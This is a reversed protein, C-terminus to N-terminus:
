PDVRGRLAKRQGRQKKHELRRRKASRSPRTPKRPRVPQMVGAILQKLRQRADDRNQQQTRYQQARIVVVGERSIRDDNLALLKERIGEPLSSAHIDFRLHIATAVKNVNQGGAGRARMAHMTIEHEALTLNRSVQLSM